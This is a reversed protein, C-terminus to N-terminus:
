RMRGAALARLPLPLDKFMALSPGSGGPEPTVTTRRSCIAGECIAFISSGSAGSFLMRRMSSGLFRMIKDAVPGSIFDSSSVMSVKSTLGNFPM